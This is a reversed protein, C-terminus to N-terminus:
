EQGTKPDKFSKKGEALDLFNGVTNPVKDAFLEAKISGLNTVIEIKPNMKNVEKTDGTKEKQNDTTKAPTNDTAAGRDDKQCSLLSCFCVAVLFLNLTRM